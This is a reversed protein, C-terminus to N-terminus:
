FVLIQTIQATIVAFDVKKISAVLFRTYDVDSEWDYEAFRPQLSSSLGM